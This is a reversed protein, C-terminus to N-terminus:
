KKIAPLLEEPETLLAGDINVHKQIYTKSMNYLPLPRM